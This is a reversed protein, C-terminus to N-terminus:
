FKKSAIRGRIMWNMGRSFFKLSGSIQRSYILGRSKWFAAASFEDVASQLVEFFEDVASCFGRGFLRGHCFNNGRGFTRVVLFFV